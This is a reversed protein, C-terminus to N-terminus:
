RALPQEVPYWFAVVLASKVVEHLNLTPPDNDCAERVAPRARQVRIHGLRELQILRM